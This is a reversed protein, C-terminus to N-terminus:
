RRDALETVISSISCPAISPSRKESRTSRPNVRPTLGGPPKRARRVGKHMVLQRVQLSRRAAFASSLECVTLRIASQGLLRSFDVRYAVICPLVSTGRRVNMAAILCVRICSRRSGSGSAKRSSLKQLFLSAGILVM